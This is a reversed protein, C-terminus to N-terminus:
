FSQMQLAPVRLLFSRMLVGCMRRSSWGLDRRGGYGSVEGDGRGVRGSGSRQRSSILGVSTSSTGADKSAESAVAAALEAASSEVAVNCLIEAGRKGTVTRDQLDHPGRPSCTCRMWTPVIASLWTAAAEQTWAAQVCAWCCCVSRSATLVHMILSHTSRGHFGQMCASIICLYIVLLLVTRHRMQGQDMGCARAFLGSKIVQLLASQMNTCLPEFSAAQARAWICQLM